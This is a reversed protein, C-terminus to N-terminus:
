LFVAVSEILLGNTCLKIVPYCPEEEYDDDGLLTANKNLRICGVGGLECIPFELVHPIVM